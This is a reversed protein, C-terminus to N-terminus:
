DPEVARHHPAAWHEELMAQREVEGRRIDALYTESDPVRTMTGFAADLAARQRALVISDDDRDAAALYEVIAERIIHSSTTGIRRARDALETAQTEDLYIQTRRMIYTDYM